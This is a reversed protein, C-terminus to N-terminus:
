RKRAPLGYARYAGQEATDAILRGRLPESM